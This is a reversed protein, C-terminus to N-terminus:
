DQSCAKAVYALKHMSVIRENVARHPHVVNSSSQLLQIWCSARGGWFNGIASWLPGVSNYASSSVLNSIWTWIQSNETAPFERPTRQAVPQRNRRTLDERSPLPQQMLSADPPRGRNAVPWQDQAAGAERSRRRM